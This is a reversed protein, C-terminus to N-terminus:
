LLISTGFCRARSAGPTRHCCGPSGAAAPLAKRTIEKQFSDSM